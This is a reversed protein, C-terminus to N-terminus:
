PRFTSVGESARYAAADSPTLVNLGYAFDDSKLEVATVTALSPDAALVTSVATACALLSWVVAGAASTAFRM